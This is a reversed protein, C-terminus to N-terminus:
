NEEGILAKFNKDIAIVNKQTFENKTFKVGKRLYESFIVPTQEPQFGLQLETAQLWFRQIAAGAKLYDDLTQAENDAVIVFHACSKIATSFDLLLKPAITGALYKDLFRFREWSNLSWKTLAITVPDIGLSKAPLKDKSFTSNCNKEPSTDQSIPTFEMIKSHVEYGEKMSLRTTSNGYMFKAVNWRATLTEMWIVSFGDPLIAELKQKEIHTLKRTGMRKRQVCRTKIYPFLSHTTLPKTAVILQIKFTPFEDYGDCSPEVGLKNTTLNIDVQFNLSQAAIKCNEIFCGLALKSANGQLDYVVHNRTDFGHIICQLDNIVEIRQPQMNDGSPAWKAYEFVEEIPKLNTEKKHEPTPALVIKKAIKFILKALLGRNGFPRWTKTFKNRYADFHLGYPAALVKGRNLLIKLAYTGAMGACLNVAMPTSPGRKEIFSVKTKDVLYSRQLMAPSLGILFQILQDNETKKDEFRFYEEYTMKGPMFCLFAAGMGLPAATIVPNNKEYCKKFVTKRAQLAFFDLADVYLDVGELFEDVNHEFIGEPFSKINAEPNIDKAMREMVDVKQEGLTSMFAGSQRNFNHVEFEDFDSIYFNSVGLRALTLLHVGGVGGAGAIAVRKNKLIQQEAETIWGINRSFAKKYNFM